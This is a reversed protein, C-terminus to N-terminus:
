NNFKIVKPPLDNRTIITKGMTKGEGKGDTYKDGVMMKLMFAIFKNKEEGDQMFKNLTNDVCAFKERNNLHRAPRYGMRPYSKRYMSMKLKLEEVQNKILTVGDKMTVIAPSNEDAKKNKAKKLIKKLQDKLANLTREQNNLDKEVSIYEKYEDDSMPVLTTNLEPNFVLIFVMLSAYLDNAVLHIHDSEYELVDVNLPLSSPKHVSNEFKTIGEVMQDNDYLKLVLIKSKDSKNDMSENVIYRYGINKLNIDGHPHKYEDSVKVVDNYFISFSNIFEDCLATGEKIVCCGEDDALPTLRAIYQKLTFKNKDIQDIKRNIGLEYSRVGNKELLDLVEIQKKSQIDIYTKLKLNIDTLGNGKNTGILVNKIIADIDKTRLIVKRVLIDNKNPNSSELVRAEGGCGITKIKKTKVSTEYQKGGFLPSIDGM